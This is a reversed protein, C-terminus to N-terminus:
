RQCLAFYFVAVASVIMLMLFFLSSVLGLLAMFYGREERHDRSEIAGLVRMNRLSMLASAVVPLALVGSAIVLFTRIGFGLLNDPAYGKSCAVEPLEGGVALQAIWLLPPAVVAFWLTFSGKSKPRVISSAM